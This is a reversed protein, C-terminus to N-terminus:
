RTGKRAMAAIRRACAAADAMVAHEWLRLVTWGAARLDRGVRRDRSKNRELKDRWFPSLSDKWADLRWGHWFDGDVFVALRAARVVVDPMGSLGRVNSEHAVGLRVLAARLALEPKTGRSRIRSMLRSRQRPTLRDRSAREEGMAHRELLDDINPLPEQKRMACPWHVGPIFARCLNPRNEYDGCRGEPTLRPCSLVWREDTPDRYEPLFPLGANSMWPDPHRITALWVLADLRTASGNLCDTDGAHLKIRRCCMGPDGCNGCLDLPM